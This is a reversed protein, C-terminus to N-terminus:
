AYPVIHFDNITNTEEAKPYNSKEINSYAPTIPYAKKNTNKIILKTRINFKSIAM